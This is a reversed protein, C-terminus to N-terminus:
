FTSLVIINCKNQIVSFLMSHFMNLITNLVENALQYIGIKPFFILRSISHLLVNKVNRYSTMM